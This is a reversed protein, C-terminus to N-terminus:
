LCVGIIFLLAPLLLFCLGALLNSILATKTEEDEDISDEDISASGTSEIPTPEEETYDILFGMKPKTKRVKKSDENLYHIRLGDLKLYNVWALAFFVAGLVFFAHGTFNKQTNLFRNWLLALVMGTIFRRVFKYLVPKLKNPRYKELFRKM